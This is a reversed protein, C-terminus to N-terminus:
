YGFFRELESPEGEIGAVRIAQRHSMRHKRAQSKPRFEAVRKSALELEDTTMTHEMSPLHARAKESGQAAALSTWMLGEVRDEPVGDGLFTAAGLAAQGLPDGYEAAARYWKAAQEADEELGWGSAYLLGLLSQATPLGAEAAEKLWRSAEAADPKMGTGSLSWMGLILKCRADDGRAGRKLSGLAEEPKGSELRDSARSV